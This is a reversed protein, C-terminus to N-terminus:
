FHFYPAASIATLIDADQILNLERSWSQNGAKQWHLGQPLLDQSPHNPRQWKHPHGPNLELSGTEAWEQDNLANPLSGAPPSDTEAQSPIPIHISSKWLMMSKSTSQLGLPIKNEKLIYTILQWAYDMIYFCVPIKAKRKEKTSKHHAKEGHSHLEKNAKGTSGQTRPGRNFPVFTGQFSIGRSSTPQGRHAGETQQTPQQTVSWGTWPM